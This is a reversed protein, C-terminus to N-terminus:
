KKFNNVLKILFSSNVGLSLILLFTNLFYFMGGQISYLLYYQMFFILHNVILKKFKIDTKIIKKTDIYRAVCNIFLSISSGIAAGNLGYKPILIINLIINIISSIVNTFFVGKTKKAAIYYQGLFGSFSSYLVTLLLLPVYKWAVFFDESVLVSMLPKIILMIATVGLFLFESYASFVKSYYTNKDRSNYEEIASLQWAQFFISNLVSLLTPIKNAVAFIGNASSSIFYLISYRNITNTAFWAISNPILPASYIFMDKCLVSDFKEKRFDNLLKGRSILYLNSCILGIIISYLYGQIGMDLLLLLILNSLATIFALIIGNVAFINVKGLSKIYQSFISQYSQLVLIIGVYISLEIKFMCFIASIIIVFVNTINTVILGITFVQKSDTNKDMSFRLVADYISVSIIPLLLSVTTQVLDTVGYDSTTLKYTYLPLLFFTILKSGLNGIAFAISNNFLKKYRDM